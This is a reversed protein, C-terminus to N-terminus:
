VHKRRLNILNHKFLLLAIIIALLFSGAVYKNITNIYYVNFAEGYSIGPELPIGSKVSLDKINLLHIFPVDRESFRSIVGRELDSCIKYPKNLGNPISVAHSCNGLSAHNGGINILLSINENLLLTTKYDISEPLGLPKYISYGNRIAANDFLSDADEMLGEGLDNEAGKTIVTSPFLLEGSEVLWKEYDLWTAMPQNAGYSSSGLSSILIVKANITQCAALTAIALAPFSGSITIGVTSNSDIEAEFLMKLIVASYDPNTSLEKAELSGLTTTLLTYEDGIMFSNHVISESDSLIGLASKREHIINFWHQTLESSKKLLEFHPDSEVTVFFMKLAVASTISGLFILLLFLSTKRNLKVSAM